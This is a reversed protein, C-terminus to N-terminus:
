CLMVTLTVGELNYCLKGADSARAELRHFTSSQKSYFLAVPNVKFPSDGSTRSEEIQAAATPPFRGHLKPNLSHRARQQPRAPLFSGLHVRGLM